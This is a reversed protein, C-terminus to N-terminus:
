EYTVQSQESPGADEGFRVEAGLNRLKGALDEYGREIHWGQGLKTTGQACLAAVVLAAGARIDPMQLDAGTLQTPGDVIATRGEVRIRAGMKVLQPVHQFRNEFIYESVYTEGVAQTMLALYQAQLDTPYGPHVWTLLDVPHLSAGRRVRMRDP